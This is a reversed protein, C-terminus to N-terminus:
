PSFSTTDTAVKRKIETFEKERKWTNKKKGKGRQQISVNTTIKKPLWIVGWWVQDYVLQPTAYPTAQNAHGMPRVVIETVAQILGNGMDTSKLYDPSARAAGGYEVLAVAEQM